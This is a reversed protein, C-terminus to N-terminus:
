TESLARIVVTNSDGIVVNSPEINGKVRWPPTKGESGDDQAVDINTM